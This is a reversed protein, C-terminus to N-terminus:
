ETANNIRTSLVDEAVADLGMRKLAKLAATKAIFRFREKEAAIQEELVREEWINFNEQLNELLSSVFRFKTEGKTSDAEIAQANDDGPACDPAVRERRGPLLGVRSFGNYLPAVLNRIFGVQLRSLNPDDRDMFQEVPMGLRKEDDGQAYFERSILETWRVQIPHPKAPTNIDAM